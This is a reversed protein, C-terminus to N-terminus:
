AEITGLFSTGIGFPTPDVVSNGEIVCSKRKPNGEESVIRVNGKLIGTDKM